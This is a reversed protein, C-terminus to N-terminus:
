EFKLKWFTYQEPTFYAKIFYKYGYTQHDIYRVWEPKPSSNAMVWKGAETNEWEWLPASAHLDPDDVDSVNFTFVKHGVIKARSPDFQWQQKLKDM